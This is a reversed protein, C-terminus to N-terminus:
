VAVFDGKIFGEARCLCFNQIRSLSDGHFFAGRVFGCSQVKCASNKICFIGLKCVTMRMKIKYCFIFIM